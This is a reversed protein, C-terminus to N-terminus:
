IVAGLDARLQPRDYNAYTFKGRIRGQDDFHDLDNDNFAAVFRDLVDGIPVPAPPSPM